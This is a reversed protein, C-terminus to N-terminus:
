NWFVHKKYNISKGNRMTEVKKQLKKIHREFKLQADTNSPDQKQLM